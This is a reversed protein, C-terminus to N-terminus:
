YYYYMWYTDGFHKMLANRNKTTKARGREQIFTDLQSALAKSHWYYRPQRSTSMYLQLAEAYVTPIGRNLNYSKKIKAAFPALQKKMLMDCLISDTNEAPTDNKSKHSKEKDEDEAQQSRLAAFRHVNSYIIREGHAKIHTQEDTIGVFVIMMFFGILQLINIWTLQSLLGVSRVAPEISQTNRAIIAVGVYIILLLPMAWTWAGLSITGTTDVSLSTLFAIFLCSPFYTIAYWRKHLRTTAFVGIQLLKLVATILLAGVVPVYYTRGGSAAHQLRFLIDSQYDYLYVLSFTCFLATCILRTYLSATRDM